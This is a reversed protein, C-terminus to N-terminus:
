GGESRSRSRRRVTLAGGRREAEEGRRGRGAAVAVRRQLVLLRVHPQHQLRRLRRPPLRQRGGPLPRPAPLRVRRRAQPPRHQLWLMMLQTSREETKVVLAGLPFSPSLCRSLSVCLNRRGEDDVCWPEPCHQSTYAENTMVTQLRVGRAQVDEEIRRMISRSSDVGGGRGAERKPKAWGVALSVLTKHADEESPANRGGVFARGFEAAVARGYADFITKNRQRQRSMEANTAVLASVTTRMKM